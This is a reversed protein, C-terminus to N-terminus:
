ISQSSIGPVGGPVWCTGQFSGVSCKPFTPRLGEPHLVKKLPFFFPHWYALKRHGGRRASTQLGAQSSSPVGSEPFVGQNAPLTVTHSRSTASTRPRSLLTRQLKRRGRPAAQARAWPWWGGPRAVALHPHSTYTARPTPRMCGRSSLHASCGESNM